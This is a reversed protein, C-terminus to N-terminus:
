KPRYDARNFWGELFQNQTTDINVINQYYQKQVKIVEDIIADEGVINIASKVAVRTKNGMGGDEVLPRQMIPAKTFINNLARQMILTSKGTNIQVDAMKFAVINKGYNHEANALFDRRYIEKAEVQTLNIIDLHPYSKASIGFNTGKLTGKGKQGGTWNGHDDENDTYGGEHHLVQDLFVDAKLEYTLANPQMVSAIM